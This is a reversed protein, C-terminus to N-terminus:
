SEKKRIRPFVMGTTKRYKKYQQGFIKINNLEEVRIRMFYAPITLFLFYLITMYANAILVVGLLELLTATYIPHRIYQYPGLTILRKHEIKKKGIAHIAWQKGLAAMGWWRLRFAAVYILLGSGSIALNISRGTLYFETMVLYFLFVYAFTVLVLTGDDSIVFTDKEKSTFFTEWIRFISHFLIFFCLALGYPTPRSRYFIFCIVPAILSLGILFSLILKKYSVIINQM